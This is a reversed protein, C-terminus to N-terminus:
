DRFIRWDAGGGEAGSHSVTETGFFAQDGGGGGGRERGWVQLEAGMEFFAGIHGERGCVQLEVETEFFAGILEVEELPKGRHGLLPGVPLPEPAMLHVLPSQRLAMGAKFNASAVFRTFLDTLAATRGFRTLLPLPLPFSFLATSSASAAPPLSPQFTFPTPLSNLPTFASPHFGSRDAILRWLGGCNGGLHELPARHVSRCGARRWSPAVRSCGGRGLGLGGGVEGDPCSCPRSWATCGLPLRPGGVASRFRRSRGRHVQKSPPLGPPSRQFPRRFESPAHTHM